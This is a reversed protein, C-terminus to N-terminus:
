LLSNNLNPGQLLVDNLSVGEFSASSDFVVRIKGPKQPHYVGFIPLYWVEKEDELPPAREAHHNDLIGQMFEIFDEKMNPRRQFNRQLSMISEYAYQKNNPLPKRLTRFPLPAVWSGSDDRVFEKDMLQLFALDDISPALHNDKDSRSFVTRGLHDEEQVTACSWPSDQKFFQSLDEKVKVVNLCPDKSPWKGHLM